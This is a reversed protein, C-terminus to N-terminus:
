QPKRTRRAPGVEIQTTVSPRRSDFVELLFDIFARIKPPVFRSKITVAHFIRKSTEWEPFVEVLKGQRILETTFIDLIYIYGAGMAAAQLLAQTNNFHVPGEPLLELAVGNRSFHWTNPTHSGEPFLGLCLKPDLKSPDNDAVAHALEPSACVIYKAEYIPRGVLDADEVRDMRIAIDNGSEILKQPNNTLTVSTSIEPHLRTFEVAAPCLLSHGLAFPAEIRLPGSVGQSSEKLGAEAEAVARLIERCKPLFARGEDTLNLHRTNRQILTVGLHKELNRLNSTVTANALDLSEAAKSFSGCEIIRVFIEMGRLRDM